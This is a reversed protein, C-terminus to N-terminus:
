KIEQLSDKVYEFQAAGVVKYQVTWNSSTGTYVVFNITYTVDVGEILKVDPYIASLVHGMVEIFRERMLDVVADNSMSKYEKEYQAKAKDARWDVNGQYASCGTYYDNNAYSTVYGLGSKKDTLKLKAQDINEWVWDVAAQYFKASIEINRGAPLVIVVSPDYVWTGNARVFQDTVEETSSTIVWEGATLILEKAAVVKSSTSYYVMAVKAGEVAYPYNSKAYIPLMTSPNSIYEVGLSNYVSPNVTAVNVGDIEYEKWNNGDYKYVASANYSVTPVAARSMAVRTDAVGKYKYLTPLLGETKSYSGFNSYNTSYQVYKSKAVNTINFTGDGNATITWDYGDTNYVDKFNFSNYTGSMYVYRGDSGYISYGAPTAAMKYACANVAEDAAIFGDVAAVDTSTLYGYAKSLPTAAKLAGEVDAVILYSGEGALNTVKYYGANPSGAPVTSIERICLKLYSAPQACYRYVHLFSLTADAPLTMVPSVLFSEVKYRTGNSYASGTACKNSAHHFWAQSLGEPLTGEAVFEGLSSDFPENLITKGGATVDLDKVRWTSTNNNTGDSNYLFAIQVKKGAYASLDTTNKVYEWSKGDSYTDITLPQWPGAIEVGSSPTNGYSPETSSYNYNVVLVDGAKADTNSAKLLSPIKSITKPTLFSANVGKSNWVSNYDKDSVTYSGATGLETLYEPEGVLHKYTVKVASKDDATPYLEALFAPIFTHGDIVDTLYKNNTVKELAKYVVSDEPSKALAINKNTSNKAIKGYDADTLTYSLTKVDTPTYEGTYGDLRDNYDECGALLLLAVTAHLLTHRKM